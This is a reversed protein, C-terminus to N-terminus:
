KGRRSEARIRVNATDHSTQSVRSADTSRSLAAAHVRRNRGVRLSGSLFVAAIIVLGKIVLQPESSIGVLNMINGVIEVIFGGLVASIPDGTGGSLAAGGVVVAAIADLEYGQGILSSGELLQAAAILGALSACLGSVAYSLLLCRKVPIGSLRAAEPSGGIAYLYRGVSTYRFVFAAILMVLIFIIVPNHVVPLVKGSSFAQIFGQDSIQILSQSQVIYSLGQIASMTALTAIFPALRMGVVLIGNILGCAGGAALTSLVALPWPLGQRLLLSVTVTSIAVISGVSLDIGGTVIVFFQGVALVSAIASFTVVNNINRGTLFAPSVFSGITAIAVLVALLFTRYTLIRRLGGARSARVSGLVATLASRMTAGYRESEGSGSGVHLNGM